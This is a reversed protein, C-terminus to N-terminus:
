EGKCLDIIPKLLILTKEIATIRLYHSSAANELSKIRENLKWEPPQKLGQGSTSGFHEEAEIVAAVQREDREKRDKLVLKHLHDYIYEAADAMSQPPSLEYWEVEEVKKEEQVRKSFKCSYRAKPLEEPKNSDRPLDYSGTEVFHLAREVLKALEKLQFAKLSIAEDPASRCDQILIVKTDGSMPIQGPAAEVKMQFTREKEGLFTTLTNM